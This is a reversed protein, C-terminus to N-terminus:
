CMTLLKDSLKAFDKLSLKEGRIDAPLGCDTIAMALKERGLASFETMLSNALTKRRQAFAGRITKFLMEESKVNVPPEKYLDITIVSSDVKPMPMFCGAPVNFKRTVRGYYSVVATIAGYDGSGAEATLRQAVEKQIMVTIREFGAKSELLKMIIPTTIYYPLNAAVSVSYGKSIFETDCLEKIDTKMVDRNIVTTNKKSELTEELVPLLRSDIELAVVKACRDALEGTLTGIGPGIELIGTKEKDFGETAAEAINKPVAESILFNQGYKKQFTIGHKAMLEKVTGTDTLKM